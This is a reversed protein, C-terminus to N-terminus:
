LNLNCSSLLCSISMKYGVERPDSWIKEAYWDRIKNGLNTCPVSDHCLAEWLVRWEVKGNNIWYKIVETFCRSVDCHHNAEIEDLKNAPVKLVVGLAHWKSQPFETLQNM